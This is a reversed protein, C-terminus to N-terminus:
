RRNRIFAVSWDDSFIQKWDTDATLLQILGDDAGPRLFFAKPKYRDVITALPVKGAREDAHVQWDSISYLYYRGDHTVRWDPYGYDILTGGQFYNCYIVGKMGSERLATAGAFSQYVYWYPPLMLRIAFTLLWLSIVFPRTVRNPWWPQAPTVSVPPALLFYWIPIMVAAWFLIFRHMYITLALLPLTALLEALPVRRWRYCCVVITPIIVLFASLRGSGFFWDLFGTVDGSVLTSTCKQDWLPKWEGIGFWLSAEANDKSLPFIAAGAPTAFLAAAAILTLGITAFRQNEARYWYWLLGEAFALSGLWVFGAVASPHANQWVVLLIAGFLWKKWAPLQSRTLLVLLAFALVSFSQPRGTMSHSFTCLQALVLATVAPWTVGRERRMRHALIIYGGFWILTDVLHLGVWGTALRVQSYIVQALWAVPVHPRDPQTSLFPETKPIGQAFTIEGLKLQWFVDTDAM